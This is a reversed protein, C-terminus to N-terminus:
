ICDQRECVHFSATAQEMSAAQEAASPTLGPSLTGMVTEKEVAGDAPAVREDLGADDADRDTDTV